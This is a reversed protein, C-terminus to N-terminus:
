FSSHGIETAGNGERGKTNKRLGRGASHGWVGIDYFSPGHVLEQRTQPRSFHYLIM